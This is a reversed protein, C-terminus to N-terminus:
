GNIEKRKNALWRECNRKAVRPGWVDIIWQTRAIHGQDDLKVWGEYVPRGSRETKRVYGHGVPTRRPATRLALERVTANRWRVAAALAQAKGGHKGDSFSRSIVRPSQKGPLQMQFRVWYAHTRNYDLRTIFKLGLRPM